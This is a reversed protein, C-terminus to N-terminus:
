TNLNYKNQLYVVSNPLDAMWMRCRPSSSIWGATREKANKWIFPRQIDPLGIEGLEIYQVLSNLDYRVDKFVTDSM